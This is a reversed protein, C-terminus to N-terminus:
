ITKLKLWRSVEEEDSAETHDAVMRCLAWYLRHQKSSREKKVQWRFIEGEPIKHLKEADSDFAPVLVVADGKRTKVLEIIAMIGAENFSIAVM